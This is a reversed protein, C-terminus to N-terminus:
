PVMESVEHDLDSSHGGLLLGQAREIAEPPGTLAVTDGASIPTDGAPLLIRRGGRILAIVTAGSRARLDLEGLTRGSAHATSPIPLSVVRDLGPLLSEDTLTAEQVSGSRRALAIAIQLAGSQLETTVSGATKWVFVGTAGLILALLIGGSASGALPQVVAAVPVGLGFVVLVRIMVRLMRDALRGGPSSAVPDSLISRPALTSLVWTNRILGVLFPLCLVATATWTSIRASNPDIDFQITLVESLRALWSVSVELLLILVFGDVVVARLARRLNRQLESGPDRTRIREIWETYLNLLSRVSSPMRSDALHVIKESWTLLVPTTFSTVAAATVIIPQLEPPAVGAERGIATLIFAFEGIQGLALGSVLSRRLGVGSLLGAVSVSLFQAGIIAGAVIATAGAHGAAEAPNVTMGISVFFVAAFVDRLPQIVHEVERGLGSEAVLIGAVFAGLATSFGLANASEALAFCLGVSVVAKIEASASRTLARILRPVVLLGGGLLVLLVLGLQTLTGWIEAGDLGTGAAVATMIAILVIAVVDQIVLVGFVHQRVDADVPHSDFVKSVVMTSSIALSAGLFSSEVSSWGFAQGLAHGTWALFAIQVLGTFGSVPLVAVLRQIRFELGVAFMVLVVGFEAMTEVRDPDAFLPIPIYPGVILGALLYGLITPQRFRRALVSTLAGVALVLAFDTIFSADHM